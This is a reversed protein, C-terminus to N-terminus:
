GDAKQFLRIPNQKSYNQAQLKLAILTRQLLPSLEIPKTTPKERMQELLALWDEVLQALDEVQKSQSRLEQVLRASSGQAVIRRKIEIIQMRKSTLLLALEQRDTSSQARDGKGDGCGGGVGDCLGRLVKAWV